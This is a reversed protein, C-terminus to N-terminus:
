STDPHDQRINDDLRIRKSPGEDTRRDPRRPLDPRPQRYPEPEPRRNM